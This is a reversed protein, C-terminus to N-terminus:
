SWPDLFGTFVRREARFPIRDTVLRGERLGISGGTRRGNGQGPGPPARPSRGGHRSRLDNRFSPYGHGGNGIEDGGRLSRRRDNDGGRSAREFAALRGCGYSEDVLLTDGAEPLWQERGQKAQEWRRRERDGARRTGLALKPDAPGLGVVGQQEDISNPRVIGSRTVLRAKFQERGLEAVPDLDDAPRLRRQPAGFGNAPHDGYGSGGLRANTGIEFASREAKGPCAGADSGAVFPQVAREGCTKLACRTDVAKEAVALAVAIAVRRQAGPDGVARSGLEFQDRGAERDGCARLEVAIIGVGVGTGVSTVFGAVAKGCGAEARDPPRTLPCERATSGSQSRGIAVQEIAVQEIAGLPGAGSSFDLEFAPESGAGDVMAQDEGQFGVAFAEGGAVPNIEPRGVLVPATAM